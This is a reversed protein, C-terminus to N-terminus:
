ECTVSRWTVARRGTARCARAEGQDVGQDRLLDPLRRAVMYRDLGAAQALEASTVPERARRLAELVAAKQRGQAGTRVLELAAEHSTGPDTARALKGAELDDLDDGPTPWMALQEGM